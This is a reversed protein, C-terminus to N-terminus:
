QAARSASAGSMVRVAHEIGEVVQATRQLDLTEITDTPKHYHPNRFNSTDTVMVAPVGIMWFPAHDSRQTDPVADGNGPIFDVLFTKLLPSGARMLDNLERAFASSAQNAVLTITNGVTPPEFVGPIRPIPSRQSNPEDTFYGIMELNIVGVIQEEGARLEALRAHEFSGDLGEEEVNFLAFRVTRQTQAAFAPSSLRRAIEMLGAVGSANDDAGPSGQVADYHASVILVEDPRTNGPIEVIINNWGAAMAESPWPIPELRPSYGYRTLTRLLIGEASELGASMAREPTAVRATPIARIQAEISSDSIPAAYAPPRRVPASATTACACLVVATFSLAAAAAVTRRTIMADM